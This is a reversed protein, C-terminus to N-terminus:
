AEDDDDFKRDLADDAGKRDKALQERAKDAEKEAEALVEKLQETSSALAHRAKDIAAMLGEATAIALRTTEIVLEVNM